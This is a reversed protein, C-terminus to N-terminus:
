AFVLTSLLSGFAAGMDEQMQFSNARSTTANQMISNVANSSIGLASMANAFETGGIQAQEGSVQTLGAAGAQKGQVENQNIITDIGSNTNTQAQQNNAATGGSRGTGFTGQANRSADSQALAANVAPAANAATQTRGATLLNQYYNGATGLNTSATGLSAAGTQQGTGSIGLGANFVNFLDGTAQLQQSRDTKVSGTEGFIGAM